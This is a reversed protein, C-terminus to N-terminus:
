AYHVFSDGYKIDHNYIGADGQTWGIAIMVKDGEANIPHATCHYGDIPLEPGTYWSEGDYLYTQNFSM